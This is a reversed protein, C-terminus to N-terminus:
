AAAGRRQRGINAFDQRTALRRLMAAEVDARPVGFRERSADALAAADCLPAPLPLTTGTVPRLTQGHVCARIAVEHAALGQLDDPMLPGFSRALTKADDHGLQFAIQTRVVGLMASQMSESLQGLSQNALVLGMGLGRAQAAMDEIALPLRMVDQAEDVYCMVPHRREPPVAVRGLCAQWIGAVLLSGLLQATEPGVTGKGLSVLLIRRKTFVDALNIGQSQGLLLRLPTRTSFVRLKNMTPGIVATRDSASRAAYEDWFGRVSLPVGPQALVFRRFSNSTLLEPVDTIAFASGDPARTHTLTLLSARLVDATRPGWSTRWLEHLVHVTHDVALERALEGGPMQLVNWGIVHGTIAAPDLVVVDPRRESALRALLDAIADGKPDVFVLGMGDAIDQLAMNVMLTSKGVGTPGPIYTHMLRDHLRLALPRKTGPYNAQAVVCGARAMSQAPPLQRSGGTTFGPLPVGPAMGFLGAAEVTNVVLPRLLPVARRHLRDAIVWSPLQRRVIQAGPANLLRLGGIVGQLLSGARDRRKAGVGVRVALRLRPWRQRNREARRQEADDSRPRPPTGASGTVLQMVVREDGHLPQMAALVAATAAQGREHALMGSGAVALEAAIHFAPREKLYVAADDLRVPLAARLSSLVMRRQRALVILYHSIGTKTAVVEVVVPPPMVLAFRPPHTTAAIVDLWRAVTQIDLSGPLGLKLAILRTRM